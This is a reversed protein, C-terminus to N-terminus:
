PTWRHVSDAGTVACPTSDARTGAEARARERAFDRVLDHPVYRGYATEEMLAVDVLRDLAAGARREDTGTLRAM